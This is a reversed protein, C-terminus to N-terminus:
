FWSLDYAEDNAGQLTSLEIGPSYMAEDLHNLSFQLDSDSMTSPEADLSMIPDDQTEGWIGTDSIQWKFVDLNESPQEQFLDDMGTNVTDAAIPGVEDDLMFDSLPASLDAETSPDLPLDGYETSPTPALSIQDVDNITGTSGLGEAEELQGSGGRGRRLDWPTRTPWNDWPYPWWGGDNRWHYPNPEGTMEEHPKYSDLICPPRKFFNCFLCFDTRM